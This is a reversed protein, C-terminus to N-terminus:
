APTPQARPSNLRPAPTLRRELRTKLTELKNQSLKGRRKINLDSM